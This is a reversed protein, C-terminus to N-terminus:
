AAEGRVDRGTADAEPQRLDFPVEFYFVSGEGLASKAEIRGGMLTVLQKTIALGLGTGGYERTTSDEAQVFPQFLTELKEPRIGVGTDRVEFRLWDLGDRRAMDAKIAILGGKTFKAANGALNLMCQKVKHADNYACRLGRAINVSLANGNQAALPRIIQIVSSVIQAPDYDVPDIRVQGAEIKSIDLIENVLTLLHRSADIIKDIDEVEGGRGEDLAIERLLESYSRISTLPTRVEHSMNAIFRSKAQSAANAEAMARSLAETREEVRVELQAREAELQVSQQRIKDGQRTMTRAIACGHAASAVVLVLVAFAILWEFQQMRRAEALEETRADFRIQQYRGEARDILAMLQRSAQDAAAMRRAAEGTRRRAINQFVAESAVGVNAAARRIASLDAVEVLRAVQAHESYRFLEMQALQHYVLAQAAELERRANSADGTEFVENAPASLRLAAEDLEVLRDLYALSHHGVEAARESRQVLVHGFFLASCIMIGNSAVLGFLAWQLKSLRRWIPVALM